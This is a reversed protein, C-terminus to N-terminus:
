FALLWTVLWYCSVQETSVVERINQNWCLAIERPFKLRSLEETTDCVNFLRGINTPTQFLLFLLLAYMPFKFCRRWHTLWLNWQRMWIILDDKTRHTTLQISRMSYNNCWLIQKSPFMHLWFKVQDMIQIKNANMAVWNALRSTYLLM